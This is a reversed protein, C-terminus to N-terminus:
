RALLATLESVMAQVVKPSSEIDVPEGLRWSENWPVHWVRPVGGSVVKAMDRLLRPLRGPADAVLVMGLVDVGPVAGSAWETAALQAARLGHAHTRAVLIVKALQSPMTVRSSQSASVPEPWAHHAVRSAEILRALTTEGAGGHVGLWWLGEFEPVSRRSLLDSSQPVPVGVHPRQPGTVRPLEEADVEPEDASTAPTAVTIWPNQEGM